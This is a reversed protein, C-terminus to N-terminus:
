NSIKTIENAFCELESGDNWKIYVIDDEFAENEDGQVEIYDVMDLKSCDSEPDDKGAPDNWQIVNGITLLRAEQPTM